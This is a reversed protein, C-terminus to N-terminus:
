TEAESATDSGNEDDNAAQVALLTCCLHLVLWWLYIVRNTFFSPTDMLGHAILNRLNSGLRENLLGQLDFVTDEGLIEVLEPRELLSGLLHEDQVGQSDLGTVRVGYQHLLYRLSHEVQPILLNAATLFDGVMGAHLGRAYIYERGPPVFPNNAALTNFHVVRVTHEMNIQQLAPRIVGQALADQHVTAQRYMELRLAVEQEEPTGFFLSERWGVGKGEENRKYLPIVYHLTNSRAIEEVYQRLEDVRPSYGLLALQLIAEELMKGQIVEKAQRAIQSLDITRGPVPEYNAMDQRQYELILRHIEDRRKGSDAIQQYAAIARQLHWTARAYSNPRCVLEGEAEEVYTEAARVTADRQATEDQEMPHWRAKVEWYARARVPKQCACKGGPDNTAAKEALAIYKVPNGQRQELLLHMLKASLIEPDEGNYADLKQEIYAIVDPLNTNRPGGLTAWLEVAREVRMYFPFWSVMDELNTAADLYSQIALPAISFLRREVWLFDSIRARMEPDAVEPVIEALVAFPANAADFVGRNAFPSEYAGAEMHLAALTGLVRFVHAARENGARHAEGSKNLLPRYYDDCDKPTIPAIVDQWDTVDFDEKTLILENTAM